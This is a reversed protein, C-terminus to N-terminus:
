LRQHEQPPIRFQSITSNKNSKANSGDGRGHRTNHRDEINRIHTNRSTTPSVYHHQSRRAQPSRSPPSPSTSASDVNDNMRHRHHQLTNRHSDWVLTNEGGNRYSYRSSSPPSAVRQRHHHFYTTGSQPSRRSRPTRSFNLMEEADVVHEDLLMLDDLSSHITNRGFISGSSKM